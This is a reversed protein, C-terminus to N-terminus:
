DFRRPIAQADTEGLSTAYMPRPCYVDFGIHHVVLNTAESDFAVYRGDASIASVFSGQNGQIGNSAISVRTTTGTAAAVAPLRYGPLTILTLLLTLLLLLPHVSMLVRRRFCVYFAWM